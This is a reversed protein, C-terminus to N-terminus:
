QILKNITSEYYNVQADLTDLVRNAINLAEKRGRLGICINEKGRSFNVQVRMTALGPAAIMNKLSAIQSRRHELKQADDMVM